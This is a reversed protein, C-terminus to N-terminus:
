LICAVERDVGNECSSVGGFWTVIGVQATAATRPLSRKPLDDLVHFYDLRKLALIPVDLRKSCAWVRKTDELLSILIQFRIKGIHIVDYLASHDSLSISCFLGVLFSLLLRVWWGLLLRMWVSLLLSLLLSGNIPSCGLRPLGVRPAGDRWRM